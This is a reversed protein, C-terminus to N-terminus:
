IGGAGRNASYQELKKLIIPGNPRILHAVEMLHYAKEPDTKEFFLAADRFIDAYGNPCHGVDFKESTKNSCPFKCSRIDFDNKRLTNILAILSQDDDLNFYIFNPRGAFFSLVRNKHEYYRNLWYEKIECITEV